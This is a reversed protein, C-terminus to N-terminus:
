KKLNNLWRMARKENDEIKKIKAQIHKLLAHEEDSYDDNLRNILIGELLKLQALTFDM